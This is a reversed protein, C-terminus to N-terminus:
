VSLCRSCTAGPRGFAGCATGPPCDSSGSCMDGGGCYPDNPDHELGQEPQQYLGGFVNKLQTRSLKKGNSAGFNIKKM